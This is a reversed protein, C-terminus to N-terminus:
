FVFSKRWRKKPHPGIAMGGVPREIHRYAQVSFYSVLVIVIYLLDSRISPVVM